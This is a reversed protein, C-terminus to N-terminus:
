VGYGLIRVEEWGKVMELGMLVNKKQTGHVQLRLEVEGFYNAQASTRVFGVTEFLAISKTNTESIKVRLHTLQSTKGKTGESQETNSPPSNTATYDALIASTNTLIYQLFALLCARGYGKRHNSPHAIMLEIEGLISTPTDKDNINGDDDDSSSSSSSSDDDVLFLNIDGLM